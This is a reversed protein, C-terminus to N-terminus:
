KSLSTEKDSKILGTDNQEGLELLSEMGHSIEKTQWHYFIVLIGLM